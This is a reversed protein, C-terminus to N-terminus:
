RSSLRDASPAFRGDADSFVVEVRRNQQRGGPSDNSASPYEEGLGRSRINASPVGRSSLASMVADSRRQSLDRNYDSAGVSDTHGEIMVSMAPHARMFEALREITLMAGPRITAQDTAFLVDGLTLVMGRETQTAQLSELDARLRAAEDTADALDSRAATADSRAATAAATQMAADRTAAAARARSADAEMTRSELVVKNREAEGQEVEQRARLESTQAQAIRAHQTALYSQHQILALPKRQKASAEALAFAAEANRVRIGAAEQALPDSTARALESRATELEPIVRPTSACGASLIAAVAITVGTTLKNM